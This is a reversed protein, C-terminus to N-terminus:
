AIKDADRHPFLTTPSTSFTWRKRKKKRPLWRRRRRKVMGRCNSEEVMALWEEEGKEVTRGAIGGTCGGTGM